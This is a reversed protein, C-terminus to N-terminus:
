DCLCVHVCCFNPTNFLERQNLATNRIPLNYTGVLTSSLEDDGEGSGVVAAEILSIVKSFGNVEASCVPYTWECKRDRIMASPGCYHTILM